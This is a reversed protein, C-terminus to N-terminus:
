RRFSNVFLIKTLTCREESSIQFYSGSRRTCTNCMAFSKGHSILYLYHVCSRKCLLQRSM